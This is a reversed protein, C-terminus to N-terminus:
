TCIGIRGLLSLIHKYVPTYPLDPSILHDCYVDYSFGIGLVHFSRRQVTPIM